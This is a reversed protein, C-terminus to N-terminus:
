AKQYTAWYCTNFVSQGVAAEDFLGEELQAFRALTEARVDIDDRGWVGEVTPVSRFSLNAVALKGGPRLGAGILDLEAGPDYCHQLVWVAIAADCRLGGAVMRRFTEPSVISFQPQAVYAPALGRMKEAIDVGLVFCGYREILAKAIRGLGCGFDVVLDGAQLALTEGLLGALYPTEKRWREETTMGGEAVLIIAKADAETPTEFIKHSYTLTQGM